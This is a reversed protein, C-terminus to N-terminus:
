PIDSEWQCQWTTLLQTQLFLAPALIHFATFALCFSKFKSFIWHSGSSTNWCFFPLPCQHSSHSLTPSFSTAPTLYCLRKSSNHGHIYKSISAVLMRLLVPLVWYSALYSSHLTDLQSGSFNITPLDRAPIPSPLWWWSFAWRSLSLALILVRIEQDGM